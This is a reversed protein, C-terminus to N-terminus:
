PLIGGAHYLMTVFGSTTSSTQLMALSNGLVIGLFLGVAVASCTVTRMFFGLSRWWEIFNPHEFGERFKQMTKRALQAPVRITPMADLSDVLKRLAAAEGACASCSEFHRNMRIAQETTLEDDVWANLLIKVEQCKM